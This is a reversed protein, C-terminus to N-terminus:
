LTGKPGNKHRVKVRYEDCRSLCFAAPRNVRLLSYLRGGCTKCTSSYFQASKSAYLTRQKAGYRYDWLGSAREPRTFQTNPAVM